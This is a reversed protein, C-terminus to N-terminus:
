ACSTLTVLDPTAEVEADVPFQPARAWDALADAIEETDRPTDGVLNARVCARDGDLWAVYRDGGWGVVAESPSLGSIVLVGEGLLQALGFAGLVGDDVVPGDAAPAPVDVMGEGALYVDPLIVAESTTPPDAYADDVAAQGGEAVLEGVFHPGLQYPATLAELLVFPVADLDMGLSIELETARAEAEEAPTFTARYAEEVASASGELLVTFGFGSEDPADELEPRHLEFHQDDLAHTLEHVIVTRVYPGLDTGRVVLEDTETDYFGVVGAGLATRMAEVLDLGAPVLGLARLVHGAAELDEVGEDFDALLREVFEDDDALEVTVDRLFPLEREAAVFAQLEAVVAELDEPDAPDDPASPGRGPDPDPDDRSRDREFAVPADDGDRLLLVLGSAAAALLALAALVAVAVVWGPRGRSPEEPAPEPWTGGRIAGPPVPPPPPLLPPSPPFRPPLSPDSPPVDSVGGM